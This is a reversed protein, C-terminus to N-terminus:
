TQPGLFRLAAGNSLQTLEAKDFNAGNLFTQPDTQMIAYPYDTGLFIQGPAMDHYLHRLLQQDYVNSDYFLTRAQDSPSTRLRAKFSPLTNWGQNLRGILTAMAGGGHSLGIRLKPHREIVGGLILSAGAMATDVPFGVLPAFEPSIEIGRTSLPHLAHIFIALDLAEAAAFFGAFQADGPLVGCINSGIEVGSLGFRERMKLLYRVAREPEQLPVMGLGRFRGPAEAIMEAISANIHDALYETHEAAFWYSLLEPMPSLVQIAVGDRDMDECRRAVNWSRNDLERFPKSGVMLTATHAAGCLMCPWALGAGPAPDGPMNLPAVHSHVDILM